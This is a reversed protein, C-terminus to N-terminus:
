NSYRLIIRDTDINYLKKFGLENYYEHFAEDCILEISDLGLEFLLMPILIDKINHFYEGNIDINTIINHDNIHVSGVVEDSVVIIYLGCSSIAKIFSINRKPTTM